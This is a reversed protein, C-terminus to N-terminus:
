PDYGAGASVNDWGLYTAGEGNSSLLKGVLYRDELWTKTPLYPALPLADEHYGCYPCVEAGGNDKMCGMCLDNINQM